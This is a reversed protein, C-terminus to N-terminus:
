SDLNPIAHRACFMDLMRSGAAGLSTKGGRSRSLGAIYGGNSEDRYGWVMSPRTASMENMEQFMHLKPVVHWHTPDFEELAVYLLAFKRSAEQLISSDFQDASLQNYCTNLQQMAAKATAEEVSDDKLLRTAMENVWPVLARIEAGKGRLHHHKKGPKLMSPTLQDLRSDVDNDIYWQQLDVYMLNCRAAQSSGPYKQQFIWMISGFFHPVVGLDAIHLWDHQFCSTKLFPADFIPSIQIGQQIFRAMIDWHSLRQQRWTAHTSVDKYTAPCATCKYCIGNKENHQPYKFAQKYFSWDGRVECLVGRPFDQSMMRKRKTDSKNFPSSDHRCKPMKGLVCQKYSWSLVECIDDFTNQVVVYKRLIGVLPVRLEQKGPPLGPLAMCFLEMSMSRDWNCPVGDGWLAMPVLSSAEVNLASACNLMHQLSGAGLGTQCTLNSNNRAFSHLIEHPLLFPVPALEEANTKSNWVRIRATYLGPWATNKKFARLTARRMNKISSKQTGKGKAKKLDRFGDLGADFSAEAMFQVDQSSLKNGLFADQLGSRLRKAGTAGEPAEPKTKKQFMGACHVVTMFCVIFRLHALWKM